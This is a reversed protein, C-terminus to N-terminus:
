MKSKLRAKSIVETLETKTCLGYIDKWLLLRLKCTKLLTPNATLQIYKRFEWEM